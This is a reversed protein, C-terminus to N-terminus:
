IFLRKKLSVIIVAPAVFYMGINLLIIGIGYGLMEEETDVDVYNLLTLSTLLPTLTVKVAEKFVPNEREYDAIQPSFSYYFQNFGTMFATGSQTSMVTNDRLERLFQVQPAMESGFAATAILCGGGESSSEQTPTSTQAPQSFAALPSSNSADDRDFTAILGSHDFYSKASVPVSTIENETLIFHNKTKPIEFCQKHEKALGPQIQVQLNEYPCEVDFKWDQNEGFTLAGLAGNIIQSTVRTYQVGMSNGESAYLFFSFNNIMGGGLQEPSKPSNGDNYEKITIELLDSNSGEHLNVKTVILDDQWGQVTNSEPTKPIEFIMDYTKQLKAQGEEHKQTAQELSKFHPKFSSLLTRLSIDNEEIHQRDAVIAVVWQAPTDFQRSEVKLTLIDAYRITPDNSLKVPIKVSLDAYHFAYRLGQHLESYLEDEGYKTHPSMSGCFYEKGLHNECINYILKDSFIFHVPNPIVFIQITKEPNSFVISPTDTLIGKTNVGKDTFADKSKVTIEEIFWSDHIDMEFDYSSFETAHVSPVMVGIM